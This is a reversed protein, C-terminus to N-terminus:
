LPFPLTGGFVKNWTDKFKEIIEEAQADLKNLEELRDAPKEENAILGIRVVVAERIRDYFNNFTEILTSADLLFNYKNEVDEIAKDNICKQKKIDKTIEQLDKLYTNAQVLTMNSVENLILEEQTELVECIQDLTAEDVEGNGSLYYDALPKNHDMGIHLNAKIKPTEEGCMCPTCDCSDCVDVTKTSTSATFEAGSNLLTTIEKNYMNVDNYVKGNIIGEFVTKKM